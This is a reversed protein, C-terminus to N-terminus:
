CTESCSLRAPARTCVSITICRGAIALGGPPNALNAQLTAVGPVNAPGLVFFVAGEGPTVRATRTRAISAACRLMVDGLEDAAGVLVRDCVGDNLWCQALQVCEAFGNEFDTNTLGPGRLGLIETIYAAAAGHVSHSFDTPM